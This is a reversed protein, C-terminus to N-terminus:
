FGTNFGQFDDGFLLVDELGLVSDGYIESPEVLGDYLMYAANGFEGFGIEMLFDIFDQPAGAMTSATYAAGIITAQALSDYPTGSGKLNLLDDYIGM